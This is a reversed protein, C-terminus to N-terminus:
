LSFCQQCSLGAGHGWISPTIAIAAIGARFVAQGLIPRMNRSFVWCLYTIGIGPLSILAVYLVTVFVVVIRMAFIIPSGKEGFGFSGQNVDIVFPLVVIAILMLLVVAGVVYLLKRM